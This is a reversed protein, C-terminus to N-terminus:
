PQPDGVPVLPQGNPSMLYWYGGNLDTGQGTVMGPNVDDQYTYLPWRNYTVVRYDSSIPLTGLLSAKVGSGAEPHNGPTITAPPWSAICTVNCTMARRHDPVFMYLAYGKANVLVTAKADPLYKAAIRVPMTGPSDSSSSSQGSSSGGCGAFVVALGGLILLASGRAGRRRTFGRMGRLGLSLDSSTQACRVARRLPCFQEARRRGNGETNFGEAASSRSFQTERGLGDRRRPGEEVFTICGSVYGQCLLIAARAEAAVSRSVLCKLATPGSAAHRRGFPEQFDAVEANTCNRRVTDDELVGVKVKSLESFSGSSPNSPHRRLIRQRDRSGFM